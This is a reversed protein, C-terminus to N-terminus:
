IKSVTPEIQFEHIRTNSLFKVSISKALTWFLLLIGKQTDTSTALLEVEM